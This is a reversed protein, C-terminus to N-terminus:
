SAVTMILLGEPVDIVPLVISSTKVFRGVPEDEVMTMVAAGPLDAPNTLVGASRLIDAEAPIGWQTSGLVGDPPLFSLVNNPFMRTVNGAVDKLVADCPTIPPLGLADLLNDIEAEFAFTRGLTSGAVAAIVKTNASLIRKIRLSGLIKAPPGGYTSVYQDLAATLDSIVDVTTASSWLTGVTIKNGSPVQFDIMQAVGNEAFTLGGTSLVIGQLRNVSNKVAATTQGADATVSVQLEEPLQIGALRREKMIGTETLPLMASLAPLEGVIEYAGPRAIIPAPMGFARVPVTQALQNARGFRYRIDEVPDDPFVNALEQAQDAYPLARAAQIIPYLPVLNLVNQM